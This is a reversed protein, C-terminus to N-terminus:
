CKAATSQVVWFNLFGDLVLNVAVLRMLVVSTEIPEFLLLLGPMIAVAAILLILWWSEIGFRRAEMATQLKMVADLLLVIGIVLQLIELVRELRFLLVLGIIMAFTGLAFDFQFALQFLDRTFYGVMKIIGYIIFLVGILIGVIQLAITPKLFLFVGLGILLIAFVSYIMKATRINWWM